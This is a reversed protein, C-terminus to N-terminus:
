IGLAKRKKADINQRAFVAGRLELTATFAELENDRWMSFKNKAWKTGAYQFKVSRALMKCFKLTAFLGMLNEYRSLYGM